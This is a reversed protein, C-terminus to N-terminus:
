PEITITYTAGSHAGGIKEVSIFVAGSDDTASFITCGTNPTLTLSEGGDVYDDIEALKKNSDCLYYAKVHFETSAPFQSFDFTIDAEVQCFAKDAIELTFWDARGKKRSAPAEAHDGDDSPMKASISQLDDCDEVKAILHADQSKEHVPIDDQVECGDSIDGNVDYYEGKCTWTCQGKECIRESGANDVGPCSEDCNQCHAVTGIACPPGDVTFDTVTPYVDGAIPPLDITTDPNDVAGSDPPLLDRVDVDGCAPLAWLLGWLLVVPLIQGPLKKM